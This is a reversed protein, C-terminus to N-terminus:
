YVVLIDLADEVVVDAATGDTNGGAAIIPASLGIISSDEGFGSLGPEGDELGVSATIGIAGGAGPSDVEGQTPHEDAWGVAAFSTSLVLASVAFISLKM